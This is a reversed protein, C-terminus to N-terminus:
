RCLSLDVLHEYKHRFEPYIDALVGYYDEIYRLKRWVPALLHNRCDGCSWQHWGCRVAYTLCREYFPCETHKVGKRKVPRFPAHYWEAKM